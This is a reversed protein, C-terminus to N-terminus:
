RSTLLYSMYWQETNGQKIDDMDSTNYWYGTKKDSLKM